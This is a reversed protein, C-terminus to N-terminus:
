SLGQLKDIRHHAREIAAKNEDAQKRLYNIHINLAKVTGVTSLIGTLGSSGIIMLIDNTV